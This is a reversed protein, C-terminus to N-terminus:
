TRAFGAVMTSPAEWSDALAKWAGHEASPFGSSLVKGRADVLCYSPTGALRYDEMFSNQPRPAMLIPMRVNLEEVFLRTEAEDAISVLVLEVGARRAKPALAQYTPVAERCPACGPGVFLFAVQQGRYSDLTVDDGQLTQAKFRPAPPGKRLSQGAANSRRVLGLTLVLNFLLVIWLFVTSLLLLQQM